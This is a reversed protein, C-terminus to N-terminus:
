AGGSGTNCQNNAGKATNGSGVVGPKDGSLLCNGGSSNGTLTGGGTNAQVITNGSTANGSGAAGITVHGTNNQVQLNGLITNGSPTTGCSGILSPSADSQWLLNNGVTTSCVSAITATTLSQVQLNGRVQVQGKTPSAGQSCFPGGGQIQANGKVLTAPGLSLGGNTSQVNGTITAGSIAIPGGSSQVNGNITGGSAAFAGTGAVTVSGNITGGNLWLSQGDGVTINGTHAGTIITTASGTQAAVCGTLTTPVISSPSGTFDTSSPTPVFEAQYDYSGVTGAPMTYSVTGPSTWASTTDITTCSSTDTVSCQLFEVSGDGTFPARGAAAPQIDPGVTATLTVTDAGANTSVTLGTTTPVTYEAATSYTLSLPQGQCVDQNANTDLFALNLDDVWSSNANITQATPFTLTTGGDATSSATAGSITQDSLEFDSPSCSSSGSTQWGNTFEVTVQHVYIPGNTLNNLTVPLSAVPGGPYVTPTTTPGTISVCTNDPCFTVDTRQTGANGWVHAAHSGALAVLVVSIGAIVFWRSAIRRM